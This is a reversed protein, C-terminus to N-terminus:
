KLSWRKIVELLANSVCVADTKTFIDLLQKGRELRVVPYDITKLDSNTFAANNLYMTFTNNDALEEKKILEDYREKSILVQVTDNKM